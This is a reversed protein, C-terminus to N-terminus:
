DNNDKNTKRTKSYALKVLFPGIHKLPLIHNVETTAIAAKPMFDSYATKPDQVIALGGRNKIRKLGRSGDSNAGTLIIGILNSGYVDSASEFLVDISPRAYNVPNECSLSFIHNNEILLHYNSPTSYAVGSEIKEKEDAEKVTIECKENLIKILYGDSSKHRHLTIIVPLAFDGPLCPLITELVEKGGASVGIVVAKFSLVNKKQKLMNYNDDSM